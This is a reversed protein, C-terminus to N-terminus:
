PVRPPIFAALDFKEGRAEMQQKYALWDREGRWNEEVHFLAFLTVLCALTFFLRVAWKAAKSKAPSNM